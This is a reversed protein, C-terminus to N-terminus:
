SGEQARKKTMIAVAKSHEQKAKEHEKKNSSHVKSMAKTGDGKLAQIKVAHSVKLAAV